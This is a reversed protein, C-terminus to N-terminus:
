NTTVYFLYGPFLMYLKRQDPAFMFRYMDLQINAHAPPQKTPTPKWNWTGGGGLPQLSNTVYAAAIKERM